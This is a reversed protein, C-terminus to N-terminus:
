RCQYQYLAFWQLYTVTFKDEKQSYGYTFDLDLSMASSSSNANGLITRQRVSDIDSFSLIFSGSMFSDGEKQHNGYLGISVTGLDAKSNDGGYQLTSSSYSFSGGVFVEGYLREYGLRISSGGYDYGPVSSRSDRNGNSYTFDYWFIGKNNVDFLVEGIWNRKDSEQAEPGNVSFFGSDSVGLNRSSLMAVLEGVINEIAPALTTHTEPTLEEVVAERM